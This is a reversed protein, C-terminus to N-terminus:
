MNSPSLLSEVDSVNQNVNEGSRLRNREPLADVWRELEKLKWVIGAEQFSIM